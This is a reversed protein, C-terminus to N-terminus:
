SGLCRPSSALSGGSVRCLYNFFFCEVLSTPPTLVRFLCTGCGCPYFNLLSTKPTLLGLGVVPGGLGPNWHWFPLNGCSRAAFVLPSQTLPPLQQLGLSNRKPFGSCPLHLNDPKRMWTDPYSLSATNGYGQLPRIVLTRMAKLSPGIFQECLTFHARM